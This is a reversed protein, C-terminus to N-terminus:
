VRSKSTLTSGRFIISTPDMSWTFPIFSSSREGIFIESDTNRRPLLRPILCGLPTESLGESGSCTERSM